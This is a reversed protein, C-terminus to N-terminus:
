QNYPHLVLKVGGDSNQADLRKLAVMAIDDHLVGGEHEAAACQFRNLLDEPSLGKGRELIQPLAEEGLMRRRCGSEPLGDTYLFLVDHEELVIRYSKYPETALGVLAPQGSALWHTSETQQRWWLGPEHGASAYILEGSRRDLIGFFVTAFSTLDFRVFLKQLEDLVSAATAGQRLALATLAHQVWTATVAAELGKGGVDGIVLGLRREDVDFLNLFDGGVDAEALAPRYFFAVRYNRLEVPWQPWLAGQFRRAIQSEREYAAELALRARQRLILQGVQTSLTTLTEVLGPDPQLPEEHFFELVGLVRSEMIVPFACAGKLGVLAADEARPWSNEGRMDRVWTPQASLWVRGPLGEGKEFFPIQRWRDGWQGARELREQHKDVIWLTGRTWGLERGVLELIKPAIARFDTAGLALRAVAHVVARRASESEDTLSVVVGDIRGKDFLATASCRLHRGGVGIREADVEEGLFARGLLKQLWTDAFVERVLVGRHLTGFAAEFSSNASAVRLTEWSCGRCVLLPLGTPRTCSCTPDEPLFTQATLAIDSMKIRRKAAIGDM